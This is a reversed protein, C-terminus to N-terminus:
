INPDELEPFRAACPVDASRKPIVATMLFPLVGAITDDTSHEHESM